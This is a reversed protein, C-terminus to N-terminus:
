NQGIYLDPPNYAIFLVFLEGADGGGWVQERLSDRAEAVLAKRIELFKETIEGSESLPADYDPSTM